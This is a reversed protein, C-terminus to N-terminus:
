PRNIVDRPSVVMPMSVELSDVTRGPSVYADTTGSKVGNAVVGLQVAGSSVLTRHLQEAQDRRSRGVRSVVLVGDVRDLMPFADSVTTLPPADVVVFDYVHRAYELTAEMANGEVLEDPNLPLVSGAPLVHMAWRSPASGPEVEELGVSQTTEDISVVGTLVDALGPGSQLNLQQALTPMRLDLELLLTRSGVRAAAEAL